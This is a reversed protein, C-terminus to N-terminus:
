ANADQLGLKKCLSALTDQEELTLVSFFKVLMDVHKPFYNKIFAHGEDTLSVIVARKDTKDATRTVFGRKNLNNIVMTINGGSKLLKAAIDKQNLPGLHYLVELTGFQSITLGEESLSKNQTTNIQEVSRVLKIYANLTSVETKSGKHHTGM